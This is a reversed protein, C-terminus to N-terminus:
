VVEEVEFAEEFDRTWEIFLEESTQYEAEDRMWQYLRMEVDVIDKHLFDAVNDEGEDACLQVATALPLGDYMGGYLMEPTTDLYDPGPYATTWDVRSVSGPTIAKSNVWIMERRLMEACMPFRERLANMNEESMYKHEFDANLAVGDGQSFALRFTVSDVDWGTGKLWENALERMDSDWTEGMFEWQDEAWREYRRKFDEPYHEKLVDISVDM